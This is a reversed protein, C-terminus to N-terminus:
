PTEGSPKSSLPANGPAGGYIPTGNCVVASLLQGTERTERLIEELLDASRTAVVAADGDIGIWVRVGEGGSEAHIRIEAPERDRRAVRAVTGARATDRDDGIVNSAGGSRHVDLAAATGPPQSAPGVSLEARGAQRDSVGTFCPRPLGTGHLAPAEPIPAARWAPGVRLAPTPRSGAPEAARAPLPALAGHFWRASCARDLEKQWAATDRALPALPADAPIAEASAACLPNM